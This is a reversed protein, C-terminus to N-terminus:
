GCRARSKSMASLVIQCDGASGCFLHVRSLRRPGGGDCQGDLIRDGSYRAQTRRPGCPQTPGSCKRLDNRSRRTGRRHTAQILRGCRRWLLPMPPMRTRTEPEVLFEAARRLAIMGPRRLVESRPAVSITVKTSHSQSGRISRRPQRKEIAAPNDPDLVREEYKSRMQLDPM